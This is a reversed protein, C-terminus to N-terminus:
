SPQLLFSPKNKDLSLLFKCIFYFHRLSNSTCAYSWNAGRDAAPHFLDPPHVPAASFFLFAQKPPFFFVSTLWYSTSSDWSPPPKHLNTQSFSNGRMRHFAAHHCQSLHYWESVWETHSFHQQGKIWIPKIDDCVWPCHFPWLPRM